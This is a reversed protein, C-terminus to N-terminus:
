ARRPNSTLSSLHKLVSCTIPPSLVGLVCGERVAAVWVSTPFPIGFFAIESPNNRLTVELAHAGDISVWAHHFPPQNRTVAFGEVYTADLKQSVSMANAFCQKPKGLRMGKPRTKPVYARGFEFVNAQTQVNGHSYKLSAELFHIIDDVM